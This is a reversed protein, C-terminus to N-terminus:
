YYYYYYYADDYDYYYCYYGYGYGYCYGYCCYCDCYCYCFYCLLLLLLLLLLRQRRRLGLGTTTTTTTTMTTRTTTTTICSMPPSSSSSPKPPSKVLLSTEMGRNGCFADWLTECCAGGRKPCWCSWRPSDTMLLNCELLAHKPKCLSVKHGVTSNTQEQCFGLRPRPRTSHKCIVARSKKLTTKLSWM